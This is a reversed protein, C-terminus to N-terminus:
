NKTIISDFGHWVKLGVQERQKKWTGITCDIVDIYLCDVGSGSPRM